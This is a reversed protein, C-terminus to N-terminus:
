PEEYTPHLYKRLKNEVYHVGKARWLTGPDKSRCAVDDDSVEFLAKIEVGFVSGSVFVRDGHWENKVSFRDNWYALLQSVRERAVAREFHHPVTLQLEGAEDVVIPPPPKDELARAAPETTVPTAVPQAPVVAPRAAVPKQQKKVARSDASASAALGLAAFFFAGFRV